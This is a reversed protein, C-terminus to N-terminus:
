RSGIDCAQSIGTPHLRLAQEVELLASRVFCFAGSFEPANKISNVVSFKIQKGPYKKKNEEYKNRIM